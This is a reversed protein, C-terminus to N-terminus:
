VYDMFNKLLRLGNQSSKEPHFQVGFINKYEIACCYELGGYNANYAVLNNQSPKVYFSHVFYMFPDADIDKFLISDKKNLNVTNWQIQPIVYGDELTPFKVVEGDILKLGEHFGFEASSNFLLQFGLCIGLLPVGNKVSDLIKNILDNKKLNLMANGFSGVGPLIIADCDDIEDKNNTIVPIAGIKKLAQSVSFINGAGYDIVAM